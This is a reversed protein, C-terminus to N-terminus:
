VTIFDTKKKGLYNLIKEAGFLTTTQTAHKPHQLAQHTRLTQALLVHLWNQLLHPVM